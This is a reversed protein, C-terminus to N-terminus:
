TPLALEQIVMGINNAFYGVDTTQAFATGNLAPNGKYILGGFVLIGMTAFLYIVVFLIGLFTSFPALLLSISRVVISMRASQSMLRVSRLLCLFYVLRYVGPNTYGSEANTIFLTCQAAFIVIGIALDFRM